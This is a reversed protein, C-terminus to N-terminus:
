EFENMRQAMITDRVFLFSNAFIYVESPLYEFYGM